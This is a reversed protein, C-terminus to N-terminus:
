SRRSKKIWRRLIELEVYRPIKKKENVWDSITASSSYGLIEAADRYSIGGDRLLSKLQQVKKMNSSLHASM